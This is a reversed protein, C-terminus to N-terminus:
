VGRVVRMAIVPHRVIVRPNLESQGGYMEWRGGAHEPKYIFVCRADVRPQKDNLLRTPDGRVVSRVGPVGKRGIPVPLTAVQREQVAVNLVPAPLRRLNVLTKKRGCRWTRIERIM